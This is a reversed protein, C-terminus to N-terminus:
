PNIKRCIEGSPSGAGRDIVEEDFLFHPHVCIDFQFSTALLVQELYKL